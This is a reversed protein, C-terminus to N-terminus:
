YHKTVEPPHPGVKGGILWDLAQRIDQERAEGLIRTVIQGQEDVILTAPLENGLNARDLMDLDAGIWIEPNLKQHSLYEDIKARDKSENASAAIFRIKKDVYQQSLASLLPMEERCPGCWTAWFNLVVISGRLESLKHTNGALDKLEFDPARKAQAQPVACILFLVALTCRSFKM